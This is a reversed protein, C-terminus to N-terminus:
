DRTGTLLGIKDFVSSWHWQDPVEWDWSLGDLERARQLAHAYTPSAFLKVSLDYTGYVEMLDGIIDIAWEVQTSPMMQELCHGDSRIIADPDVLGHSASLIWVDEGHIMCQEYTARFVVGRCIEWAKFEGRRLTRPLGLLSVSIPEDYIRQETNAFRIKRQERDIKYHNPMPIYRDPDSSSSNREITKM